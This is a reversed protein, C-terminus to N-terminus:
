PKDTENQIKKKLRWERRKRNLEDKHEERYKRHRERIREKNAERYKKDTEAKQEKHTERYKKHREQIREKNKERYEKDYQRKDEKHQSAYIDMQRRCADKHAYYYARQKEALEAAHEQRYMKRCALPDQSYIIGYKSDEIDRINSEGGYTCNYGHKVSDFYRIYFTEYHNLQQTIFSINESTIVYQTKLTM